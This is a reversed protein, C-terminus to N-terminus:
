FILSQEFIIILSQTKNLYFNYMKDHVIYFVLYGAFVFYKCLMQVVGAWRRRRQDLTTSINYLHKTNAPYKIYIM